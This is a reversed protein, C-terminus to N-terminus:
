LSEDFAEEIWEECHIILVSFLYEVLMTDNSVVTSAMDGKSQWAKIIVGNL